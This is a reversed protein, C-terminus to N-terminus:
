LSINIAKLTWLTFVNRFHLVSKACICWKPWALSWRAAMGSCKHPTVKTSNEVNWLKYARSTMKCCGNLKICQSHCTQRKPNTNFATSSTFCLLTNLAMHRWVRYNGTFSNRGGARNWPLTLLWACRDRTEAPKCSELVHLGRSACPM